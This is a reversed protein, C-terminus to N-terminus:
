PIEYIKKMKKASQSGYPITNEITAVWGFTGFCCCGFFIRVRARARAHPRALARVRALSRPCARAFYMAYLCPVKSQYTQTRM